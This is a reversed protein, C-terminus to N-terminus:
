TGKMRAQAINQGMYVVLMYQQKATLLLAAVAM